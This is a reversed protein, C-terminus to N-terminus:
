YESSVWEQTKIKIYKLKYTDLNLLKCNKFIMFNHLSYSSTEAFGTIIDCNVRFNNEATEFHAFFEDFDQDGSELRDQIGNKTLSYESFNIEINNNSINKSLPSLAAKIYDVKIESPM